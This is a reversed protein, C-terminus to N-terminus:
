LSPLTPPCTLFTPGDPLVRVDMNCPGSAHETNIQVTGCTTHSQNVLTKAVGFFLLDTDGRGPAMTYSIKM